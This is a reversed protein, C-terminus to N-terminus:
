LLRCYKGFGQVLRAEDKLCDGLGKLAKLRTQQGARKLNYEQQAEKCGGGLLLIPRKM